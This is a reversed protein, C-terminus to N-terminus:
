QWENAYKICGIADVILFPKLSVTLKWGGKSDKSLCM